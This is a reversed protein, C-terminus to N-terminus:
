AYSSPNYAYLIQKRQAYQALPIPAKSMYADFVYGDKWSVLHWYRRNKPNSAPTWLCFPWNQPISSVDLPRRGDGVVPWWLNRMKRFKELADWPPLSRGTMHEFALRGEKACMTQRYTEWRHKKKNYGRRLEKRWQLINELEPDNLPNGWRVWWSPQFSWFLREWISSTDRIQERTREFSREGENKAIKSLRWPLRPNKYKEHSVGNRKTELPELNNWVSWTDDFSDLVRNLPTNLHYKHIM